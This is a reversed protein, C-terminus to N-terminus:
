PTSLTTRNEETITETKAKNDVSWSVPDERIM